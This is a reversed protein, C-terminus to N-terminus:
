IQQSSSKKIKIQKKTHTKICHNKPLFTVRRSMIFYITKPVVRVFHSRRNESRTTNFNDSNLLKYFYASPLDYFSFTLYNGLDVVKITIKNHSYIM